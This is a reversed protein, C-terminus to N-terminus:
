VNDRRYTALVDCARRVESDILAEIMAPDTEQSLRDKLEPAIRMLVDRAKLILGSLWDESAQKSVLEGKLQSTELEAADALAIEKRRKAELFTEDKPQAQEIVRAKGDAIIEEPTQGKALRAYVAPKTFGSQRSIETKNM